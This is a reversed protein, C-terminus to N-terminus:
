RGGSAAARELPSQESPTKPKGTRGQFLLVNSAQPSGQTEASLREEPLEHVLAHEAFAPDDAFSLRTLSRRNFQDFETLFSGFSEFKISLRLDFARALRKLTRVSWAEYDVDELVSIREQRMGAREALVQQSWERQERLVKIQTAIYTNLLDEAYIHRTEEDRFETRFKNTLESM